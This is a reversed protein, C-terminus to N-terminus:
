DPKIKTQKFKLKNLISSILRNAPSDLYVYEFKNYNLNNMKKFQKLAKLLEIEFLDLDTFSPSLVILVKTM